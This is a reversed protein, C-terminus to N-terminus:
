RVLFISTFPLGVYKWGIADLAWPNVFENFALTFQVTINQVVPEAFMHISLFVFVCWSHLAEQASEM